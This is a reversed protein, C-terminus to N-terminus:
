RNDESKGRAILWNLAARVLPQLEGTQALEREARRRDQRISYIRRAYAQARLYRERAAAKERELVARVDAPLTALNCGARVASRQEPTM